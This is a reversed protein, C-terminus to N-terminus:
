DIEKNYKFKSEILASELAEIKFIHLNKLNQKRIKEKSILAKREKEWGKEQSRLEDEFSEKIDWIKKLM